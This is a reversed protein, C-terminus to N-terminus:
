GVVSFRAIRGIAVKEGFKQVAQELLSEITQDPNKIYAQKVLVKGEAVAADLADAAVDTVNAFEPATASVQVAIERALKKFEENNSVFDTECMLEVMSGIMGNGHIYTAVTGAGLTRDAKKAASVASNKLLVAKAAELDGNAEELAKKCQGISVGTAERLVKVQDMSIAM